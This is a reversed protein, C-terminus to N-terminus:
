PRPRADGGGGDFRDLRAAALALLEPSASLYWYTWAPAAHGLYTSLRPMRAAVDVGSRYWGVLTDVAFTHRLDHLRPRCAASRPRLGAHGVLRRFTRHVNAYHLRTGATSLFFAPSTPRPWRADRLGAYRDLAALTSPHLPLVRSAGFKGARVVLRPQERDLDARDLGLAEGVRMGTVALLGLM